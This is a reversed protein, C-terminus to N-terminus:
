PVLLVHTAVRKAVGEGSVQQSVAYINPRDLFEEPMLVQPGRLYVGVHELQVAKCHPARRIPKLRNV